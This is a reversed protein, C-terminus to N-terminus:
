PRGRLRQAGESVRRRWYLTSTLRGRVGPDTRDTDRARARELEDRIHRLRRIHEDRTKEEHRM